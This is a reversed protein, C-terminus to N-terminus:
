KLPDNYNIWDLIEETFNKISPFYDPYNKIDLISNQKRKIGKFDLYSSYKYDNLYELAKNKNKIGVQKWDRQM